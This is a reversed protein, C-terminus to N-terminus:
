AAGRQAEMRKAYEIRRSREWNLFVATPPEPIDRLGRPWTGFKGKFLGAAFKVPKGRMDALALAMSYFRQKDDQTAKAPKGKIQVLAGDKSEIGAVPKREHGCGPCARGTHLTGCVTCPKPLKEAKAAQEQREGPATKDLTDHRIDEPLGLRLLNGAHDFIVLDETGPNVRMGRGLKQVHLAQSQTPAADVICSVPLDVGAIMTRVSCVVRVSGAKFARNIGDREVSDTFADVYAAAVGARIFGAALEQAHARNVGFCLTPRNEGHALWNQVVNGMLKAEGMVEALQGEVYDGARVKVGSLSPVDPAFATYRSLFGQEILEAMTIPIVVDQWTLGMGKRWPTATLGVFKVDPREAMLGDIVDSKIHAEDVLIVAAQPIDRRALTQVSAIQVSARANTRPHNSQMVGIDRIGEAEFAAVTQNILSIMPATFIVRNGKAQAGEIIKAACLTKGFGVPAQLVVSQKRDRGIAERIMALAKVQHPRLEKKAAPAELSQDLLLPGLHCGDFGMQQILRDQPAAEFAHFLDNM